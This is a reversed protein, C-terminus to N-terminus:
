LVQPAQALGHAKGTDMRPTEFVLCVFHAESISEGEGEGEGNTTMAWDSVGGPKGTPWTIAQGHVGDSNHYM